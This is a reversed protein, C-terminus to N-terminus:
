MTILVISITQPSKNPVNEREWIGGDHSLGGQVGHQRQQWAVAHNDARDVIIDDESNKLTDQLCPSM